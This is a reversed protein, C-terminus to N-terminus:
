SFIKVLIQFWSYFLLISFFQPDIKFCCTQVLIPCFQPVIFNLFIPVFKSVLFNFLINLGSNSCIMSGVFNLCFNVCIKSYCFQVFNPCMKSCDCQAYDKFWFQFLKHLLLISCFIQIFIQLLIQIFWRVVCNFSINSGFNSRTQLLLFSGFNPFINSGCFQGVHKVWFQFLNHVVLISCFIHGLIPGFWSVGFNAWFLVLFIAFFHNQYSILGSTLSIGFSIWEDFLTNYGPISFVLPLITQIRLGGGM